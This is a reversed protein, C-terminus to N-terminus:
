RRKKAAVSCACLLEDAIASIQANIGKVAALVLRIEKEMDATITEVELAARPNTELLKRFKPETLARLVMQRQKEKDDKASPM